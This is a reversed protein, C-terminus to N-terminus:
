RSKNIIKPNDESMECITYANFIHNNDLFSYADLPDEIEEDSLVDYTYEYRQNEDLLQICNFLQSEQSPYTGVDYLQTNVTYAQQNNVESYHMLPGFDIYDSDVDGVNIRGVVAFHTYKDGQVTFRVFARSVNKFDTTESTGLQQLLTDDSIITDQEETQNTSNLYYVKLESLADKRFRNTIPLIYNGSPLKSSIAFRDNDDQTSLYLRVKYGDEVFGSSGDQPVSINQKLYQYIRPYTVAGDDTYIQLNIDNGGDVDFQFTSMLYYSQQEQQQNESQEEDDSEEQVTPFTVIDGSQTTFTMSQNELLEQPNEYSMLINLASYVRWRMGADNSNMLIIQESNIPTCTITQVKSTDNLIISPVSSVLRDEVSGDQISITTGQGFSYFEQETATVGVTQKIFGIGDIQQVGGDLISSTNQVQKFKYGRFTNIDDQGVSIETGSGYINLTSKQLDTKIFYEGNGLIYYGNDNLPISEKNNLIQYCYYKNKQWTDQMMKKTSVTSEGSLVQKILYTNIRNNLDADTIIGNGSQIADSIHQQDNQALTFSPQIVEGSVYKAYYYRSDSDSVRWFFTIYDDASLKYLQGQQCSINTEYRIYNSYVTDDIYSPRIFNISENQKLTYDYGDSLDFTVSTTVSTAVIDQEQKDTLRVQIDTDKKLPLTNGNLISKTVVQQRIADAIRRYNGSGDQSVVLSDYQQGNIPIEYYSSGYTPSQISTGNVRIVAYTTYELDDLIISKIRSDQALITSYLQDYDIEKGFEVDRQNFNNYIASKINQKVETIQNDTLTYQPIIRCNVDYKNKFLCPILDYIKYYGNEDIFSIVDTSYISVDNTDQIEPYSFDHQLSKNNELQKEVVYYAEDDSILTFTRKYDQKSTIDAVYELLYLKLDFAQLKPQGQGQSQKRMQTQRSVVGDSNTIINWSNQVDTTRDQVVDNQVAYNNGIKLNYIANIYDRLSVLTNFTGVTKQYNKYASEISEPNEGNQASSLNYITTNNSNLSQTGRGKVETVVRQELSNFFKTITRQAVNGDTGSSQIYKIYLGDEILDAIDSPFEIYCIGDSNVGFKYVKSNLGQVQLNDVKKWTDWDNDSLGQNQIFVGNEAINYETFYLRNFSDFNQLTVLTDGQVSYDRVTGEIASVKVATGDKLLSSQKTLTYVVTDDDNSLMTFIPIIYQQDQSQADSEESDEGTFSISVDTTASSYWKMNYGLQSFLQRANGEQQVTEPFCELINKDINYNLKDQILQNLKILVVGPDSENSISPDYKYTLKKVLDLMQPYITQFDKETYSIGTQPNIYDSM